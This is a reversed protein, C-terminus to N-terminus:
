GAPARVPPVGRLRRSRRLRPARAASDIRSLRALGLGTAAPGRVEGSHEQRHLLRGAHGGAAGDDSVVTAAEDWLRAIGDRDYPLLVWLSDLWPERNDHSHHLFTQLTAWISRADDASVRDLNDVVLVLRRASDSSLAERMLDRFTSEFEVSTPDPTEITERTSETVSEVSFLSLIAGGASDSRGRFLWM